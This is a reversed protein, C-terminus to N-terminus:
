TRSSIISYEHILHSKHLISGHDVRCCSGSRRTAYEVRGRISLPIFEIPHSFESLPSLVIFTLIQLWFYFPQSIVPTFMRKVILLPVLRLYLSHALLLYRLFEFYVVIRRNNSTNIAVERFLRMRDYVIWIFWHVNRYIITM